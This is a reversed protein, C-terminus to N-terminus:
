CIENPSSVTGVRITHDCKLMIAPAVMKKRCVLIAGRDAELTVTLPVHGLVNLLLLVLDRDTIAHGAGLVPLVVHGAVHVVEQDVVHGSFWIM